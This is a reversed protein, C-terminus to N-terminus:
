EEEEWKCDRITAYKTARIPVMHLTAITKKWEEGDFKIDKVMLAESRYADGCYGFFVIDGVDVYSNDPFYVPVIDAAARVLCLTVYKNEKM